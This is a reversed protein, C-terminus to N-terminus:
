LEHHTLAGSTRAKLAGSPRAQMAGGSELERLHLASRQVTVPTGM